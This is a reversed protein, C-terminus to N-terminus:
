NFDIVVIFADSKKGDRVYLRDGYYFVENSNRRLATLKTTSCHSEIYLSVTDGKRVAFLDGLNYCANEIPIEVVNKSGWGNRGAPGQSGTVSLGIPGQPGVAGTAGKDGKPGPVGDVQTTNEKCGMLAVFLSCLLLKKM